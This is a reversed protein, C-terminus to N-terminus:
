KRRRFQTLPDPGALDAMDVVAIAEKRYRELDEFWTPYDGRRSFFRVSAGQLLFDEDEEDVSIGVVALLSDAEPFDSADRLMRTAFSIGRIAAGNLYAAKNVALDSLSAYVDNVEYEYSGVESADINTRWGPGWLSKLLIAGCPGLAWGARAVEDLDPSLDHNLEVPGRVLVDFM